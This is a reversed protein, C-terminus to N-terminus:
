QKNINKTTRAKLKHLVNSNIQRNEGTVKRFTDAYTTALPKQM